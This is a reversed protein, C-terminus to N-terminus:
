QLNEKLQALEQKVSLVDAPLTPPTAWGQTPIGLSAVTIKSILSDVSNILQTISDMPLAIYIKSGESIILVGSSAANGSSLIQAGPVKGAEVTVVGNEAKAILIKTLM